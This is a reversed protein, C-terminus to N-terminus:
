DQKRAVAVMSKYFPYIRGAYAFQIDTLGVEDLLTTLTRPSWFKIHGHDWLVTFHQDLKGTMALSLNKWYGHFPTSIIATGGPKLLESVTRAFHRPNYVHEVVELSVVVDFQGFRNALDDYASGLHVECEPYEKRSIAVGTESPDVGVVDYGASALHRTFAGNGCGLDFVRGGQSHSLLQKMVIPWLYADTHAAEASHWTYERMALPTDSIKDSLTM